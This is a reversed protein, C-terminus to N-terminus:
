RKDIDPENNNLELLVGAIESVSHGIILIRWPHDPIWSLIQNQRITNEETINNFNTKKLKSNSVLLM